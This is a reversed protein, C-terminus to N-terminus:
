DHDSRNAVERKSKWAMTALLAALIGGAVIVNANGGKLAEGGMIVTQMGSGCVKNVTTCPVSNPLGGHLAAQRAPAQGNGASLVQGMIVASVSAPDVRAASVAGRIATGGLRPAPVSALSGQFSGLPTRTAGVIVISSSPATPM